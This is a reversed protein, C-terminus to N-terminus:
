MECYSCCPPFSIFGQRQSRSGELPTGVGFLLFAMFTSL